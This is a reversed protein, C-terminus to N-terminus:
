LTVHITGYLTNVSYVLKGAFVVRVTFLIYEHCHLKTLYAEFILHFCLYRAMTKYAYSIQVTVHESARTSWDLSGTYSLEMYLVNVSCVLRGVFVVHVTFLFYGNWFILCNYFGAM